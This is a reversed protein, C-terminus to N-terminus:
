RREWRAPSSSLLKALSQAQQQLQKGMIEPVPAQPGHTEAYGVRENADFYIRSEWAPLGMFNHWANPPASEAFFSFTEYVMLLKDGERYFEISYKGQRTWVTAVIRGASGGIIAATAETGFADRLQLPNVRTLLEVREGPGTALKYIREVQADLNTRVAPDGYTRSEPENALTEGGFVLALIAVSCSLFWKRLPMRYRNTRCAGPHILM